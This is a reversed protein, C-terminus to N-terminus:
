FPLELSDPAKIIPKQDISESSLSASVSRVSDVRDRKEDSTLQRLSPVESDPNFWMHLGFPEAVSMRWMHIKM